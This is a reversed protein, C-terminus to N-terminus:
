TYMRCWCCACGVCVMRVVDEGYHLHTDDFPIARGEEFAQTEDIMLHFHGTGDILGDAAPRVEMGEVVFEVHLLASSKITINNVPTKFSM